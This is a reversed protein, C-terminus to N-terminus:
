ENGHVRFVWSLVGCAAILKTRKERDLASVDAGVAKFFTTDIAKDLGPYKGVNKKEIALNLSGAHFVTFKDTDGIIPTSRDGDQMLVFAMADYFSSLYQRDAPMMKPLIPRLDDALALLEPSPKPVATDAIHAPPWKIDLVSGRWAFLLLVAVAIHRPTIV